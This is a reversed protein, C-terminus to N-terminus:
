IQKRKFGVPPSYPKRWTHRASLRKAMATPMRPSDAIEAELQIGHKEAVLRVFGRVMNESFQYWGKRDDVAKLIGGHTNKKLANLRRMFSPKDLPTEGLESMIRTYSKYINAGMRQLDYADATAWLVHHYENTDKQTAKDYSRRLYPAIGDIAGNISEYYDDITVTTLPRNSEFLDWFLKETILHVYYPYGDSIAAIRILIEESIGIGFAKAADKVIDWRADWSLRELPVPELQRITSPHAGLLEDLSTGIGSFIFKISINKDGLHKLFDSFLAREKYDDILDFEDIVVVPKGSHLAAVSKILESADDMSDLITSLKDAPQRRTIEHSIGFDYIKASLTTKSINEINSSPQQIAKRAITAITGFFTSNRGCEVLIFDNDLSQYQVAATQALSTKGVGRDGYIFIHRGDAYLAKQIKRLQETRGHLKKITAIPHAPSVLEHLRKVFQEEDFGAIAM